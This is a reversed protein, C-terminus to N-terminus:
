IKGTNELAEAIQFALKLSEEVPSTDRARWVQGMGGEGIQASIEYPGLRTGPGLAM